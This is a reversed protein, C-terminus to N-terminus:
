QEVWFNGTKKLSHYQLGSANQLRNIVNVLFKRRWVTMHYLGWEGGVEEPPFM